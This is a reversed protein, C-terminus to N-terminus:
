TYVLLETTAKTRWLDKMYQWQNSCMLWKLKSSNVTDGGWNFPRQKKEEDVRRRGAGCSKTIIVKALLPSLPYKFWQVRVSLEGRRVDSIMMCWWKIDGPFTWRWHSPPDCRPFTQKRRIHVWEFLRVGPFVSESLIM